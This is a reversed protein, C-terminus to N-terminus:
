TQLAVFLSPEASLRRLRKPLKINFEFMNKNIKM